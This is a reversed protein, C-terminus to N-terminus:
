RIGKGRYEGFLWEIFGPERVAQEWIDHGGGEYETYKAYGGIKGFAAYAERSLKVPVAEDKDGHFIWLPVSRYKTMATVDAGGCIPAAAAFMNPERSLLDFTGFGGMSLGIIYIRNPDIKHKTKLKNILAILDKTPQTADAGIKPAWTNRDVPSWTGGEPCQPSLVICPHNVQVEQSTLYPVVHVSQKKNDNGREGSGHLFIVLPIRNDTKIETYYLQYPLSSGGSTYVSSHMGKKITKCSSLILLGFVVVVFLYYLIKM